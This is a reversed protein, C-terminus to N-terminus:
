FNERVFGMFFEPSVLYDILQRKEAKDYDNKDVFRNFYKIIKRRDRLGTERLTECFCIWDSWYPNLDKVMKFHQGFYYTNKNNKNDSFRM